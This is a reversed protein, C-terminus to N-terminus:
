FGKCLLFIGVALFVIIFWVSGKKAILKQSARLSPGTFGVRLVGKALVLWGLITVVVRWDKVWINHALVHLIGFVLGVLGSLLFVGENELLNAVRKRLSRNFLFALSIIVLYLGWAKALFISIDM